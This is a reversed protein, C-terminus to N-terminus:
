ESAISLEILFSAWRNIENEGNEGRDRSGSMWRVNLRFLLHIWNLSYRESILQFAM